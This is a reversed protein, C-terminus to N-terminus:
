HKSDFLLNTILVKQAGFQEFFGKKEAWFILSLPLAIELFLGLLMWFYILFVIM